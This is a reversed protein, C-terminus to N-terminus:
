NPVGLSKPLGLSNGPDFSGRLSESESGAQSAFMDKQDLSSGERSKDNGTKRLGQLGIGM